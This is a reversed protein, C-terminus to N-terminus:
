KEFMARMKKAADSLKRKEAGTDKKTRAERRNEDAPEAAETRVRETERGAKDNM